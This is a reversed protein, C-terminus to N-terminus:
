KIGLGKFAILKMDALHRETAALQGSSGSGDTPRVGARWLDDMLRRAEDPKIRVIPHAVTVAEELRRVTISEFVSKRDESYIYIGIDGFDYPDMHARMIAHEPNIDKGPKSDM